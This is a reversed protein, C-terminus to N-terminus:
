AVVEAFVQKFREMEQKTGITVRVHTPLAPWSRGIYVGKAAMASTVERGPRKVDIMIKNSVSPIFSIKRAALWDSVDNRIDAIIKRREPVLNPVKLSAEAAAMGTSPLFGVGFGRMRGLLDPRAMAVGARLGAMGYIKSFTRLIVVDKGAAVLDTGRPENCFHIYAEDLLLISGAPKNALLWEIDARPTVTGTPNNPNCVYFLGPSPHAKVMARVDHAWDKTLPVGISGAGNFEAAGVPSEYGPNATILPRGKGTFALVARHLPDSSGAFPMVYSSRLGEQEALLAAMRPGADFFYRCGDRAAAHLAQLAEPCPGLPNENANIRVAGAPIPGIDSNQALAAENYFPLRAGGGLLASWRAFGRRSLRAPAAAVWSDRRM